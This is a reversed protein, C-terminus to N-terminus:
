TSLQWYAGKVTSRIPPFIEGERLSIVEEDSAPMPISTGDTYRVFKYDGHSPVTEGTKFKVTPSPSVVFPHDKPHSNAAVYAIKRSIIELEQAYEHWLTQNVSME